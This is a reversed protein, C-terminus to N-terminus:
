ETDELWAWAEADTVFEGGYPNHLEDLLLWKVNPKQFTRFTLSM